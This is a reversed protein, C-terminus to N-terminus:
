IHCDVVTLWTDDPLGDIMKAFEASWVADDKEDSVVGWWGMSGREYWKGDLLVAFTQFPPASRIWEGIPMDSETTRADWDYFIEDYAADKGMFTLYHDRRNTKVAVWAEREAKRKTCYQRRLDDLVLDSVDLGKEVAKAKTEDWQAQRQAVAATKMAAVDLDRKYCGDVGGRGSSSGMLGPRGTVATEVGPKVMLMGQWRGGVVWGDWQKNPNTRDIVETVEGDRVRVWGYKHLNELDPVEDGTLVHLGYQSDVYELFTEYDKAPEDRMEKYGDPLTLRGDKIFPRFEDRYEGKEFANVRTGDPREIVLTATDKEYNERTEALKDINQVYQDDHGTCEFEHFPQLAADVDDPGKVAVLVSFHSM